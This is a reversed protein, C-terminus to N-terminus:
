RRKGRVPEIRVSWTTEASPDFRYKSMPEPGCSAGGLGTQRADLNLIVDEDPVLPVRRRTQGNLHRAFHLDEWGYHLAQVFMEPEGSFRAGAGSKDVFEVWRVDSKCGCDQPRVYDVFQDTVTSEYIGVFSGTSRDCYNEGPGRGYWRMRELGPMLRMTLGLRPLAKPMRGYPKVTNVLEVSGDEGFIYVCEHRFGAGKTGTVDVVATVTNSAVTFPEPHYKLQSLGSAFFDEMMWKDNDTFARACTLRPGGDVGPAPTDFVNVGGRLILRSITGTRRSFVATTRGREVTLEDETEDVGLVPIGTARDQPEEGPRPAANGGDAAAAAPAPMAIQDAAVTWGAGAWMSPEKTKFAVDLFIEKGGDLTALAAAIGELTLEGRSLPAVPPPAFEGKAAVVGDETLRWTGAFEGASTFGFRNELWLRGDQSRTVVLNQYVHGVEVLKPTVNRLPDVVGNVCFPGDNPQDDFDGGYALYRERGGTKPDYRDTYKWVAQDVWDWICGGILSDHSYIVDWYEKLNGIANGMAHAYECMIYPKGSSQLNDKPRGDLTGSGAPKDGLVGREEVWEVSPYMSSDVDAVCNGREWHVPRRMPDAARVAAAAKEFCEGHGTENGLSWMVISPHNRYFKVHRENRGVISKEWEKFRGLGKDGWGPEHGEVNAEAILYIGFRDCLDYWVPDDPYHCTRVTNINYRKMLTIDRIMDEVTTSRGREPNTEHRNVGKLKVPRGNVLFRGGEIKVDKFGVNAVRIDDGCKLVLKYLYPKEASWLSVGPVQMSMSEGKASSVLRAEADYLRATVDTPAADNEGRRTKVEVKLTANEYKEDFGTAVAFDAIGKKPRAYLEVSRFIGSFRFMDQDELYSGDCWKFVQVAIINEGEKLLGTIDFESPLKSDEAYGAERGNIWVYFASGVGKFRLVVERGAWHAPVTFVRRYSSVPNYDPTGSKRDLIRPWDLKHPYRVNTYIPSGYGQMEVCGPVDITEWKSDDFGEQWFDTPRRAPDGTWKFKWKGDLSMDFSPIYRTTQVLLEDEEAVPTSYAAAPLRRRENVDPNEWDNVDGFSVAAASAVAPLLLKAINMNGTGKM